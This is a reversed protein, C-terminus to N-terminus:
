PASKAFSDKDKFSSGFPIQARHRISVACRAALRSARRPWRTCQTQRLSRQSRRAKEIGPRAAHLRDAGSLLPRLPGLVGSAPLGPTGLRKVRRGESQRLHNASPQRRLVGLRTCAVPGDSIARGSRSASSWTDCDAVACCPSSYRFTVGRAASRYRAAIDGISKCRKGRKTICKKILAVRSFGKRPQRRVRDPALLRKQIM